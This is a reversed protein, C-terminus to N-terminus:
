FYIYRNWYPRVLRFKSSMIQAGDVCHVRIFGFSWVDPNCQHIAPNFFTPNSDKGVRTIQFTLCSEFSVAM